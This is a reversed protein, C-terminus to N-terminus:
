NKELTSKNKRTTKLGSSDATSKNETDVDENNNLKVKEASSITKM